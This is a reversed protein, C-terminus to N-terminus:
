LRMGAQRILRMVAEAHDNLYFHGGPFWHAAYEGTTHHRWAEVEAPTVEPDQVGNITTIPLPLPTWHHPHRYTEAAKYDGRVAPLVTRMLEEDSFLEPATGSMRQLTALLQDDTGLHVDQSVRATGPARRGSAILLAPPRGLRMLRQAVEYALTAGLSHGFLIIPRDLVDAIEEVVGDAFATVSELCAENRRDQRGPYQLAGVEFASSLQRSVGFFYSASGGAHPFCILQRTAEPRPHIRRLLGAHGARLDVEDLPMPGARSEAVRDLGLSQQVGVALAARRIPGGPEARDFGIKPVRLRRGADGADDLDDFRDTV